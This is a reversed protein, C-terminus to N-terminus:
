KIKILAFSAFFFCATTAEFGALAPLSSLFPFAATVLGLFFSLRPFFLAVAESRWSGELGFRARL